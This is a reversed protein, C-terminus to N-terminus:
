SGTLAQLNTSSLAEPYYALKKIHGNLINGNSYGIYLSTTKLLNGNTISTTAINGSGTNTNQTQTLSCSVKYFTNTNISSLFTGFNSGDYSLISNSNGFIINGSIGLQNGLLAWGSSVNFLNFESYFTGQGTDYWSSFNTGTMSVSDVTRTVAASTTPIYSTPFSLAELQAGWIFASSGASGNPYSGGSFTNVNSPGIEIYTTTSSTTFTISCRYWGNGVPTISTATPSGSTNSVVGTSLNFIAAFQNTAYSTGITLYISSSAKAYVSHTYLTTNATVFPVEVRSGGGSGCTLLTATQTGDPAINAATTLIATNTNGWGTFVSSQGNINTSQQEVLLGLSEGTTPNCDFRPQNAVATLLQPIYNTIATTTTVTYATASSRIELQAGWIGITGAGGLQFDIWSRNASPTVTYTIRQWSGTATYVSSTEANQLDFTFGTNGSIAIIYLSITYTVGSVFTYTSNRLFQTATGTSYVLQNATTTGDPAAILTGSVVVGTPVWSATQTFDQSYTVLNQEAVANTVGDYYTATTSRTFTIRPDLVKTKAFDLNLTPRVTPYNASISM